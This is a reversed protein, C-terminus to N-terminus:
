GNIRERFRLLRSPKFTSVVLSVVPNSGTVEEKGLFHEASQAVHARLGTKAAASGKGSLAVVSRGKLGVAGGRDWRAACGAAHRVFSGM